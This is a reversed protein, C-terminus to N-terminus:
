IHSFEEIILSGLDSRTIKYNTTSSIILLLTLLVKDIGPIEPVLGKRVRVERIIDYVKNGEELPNGPM